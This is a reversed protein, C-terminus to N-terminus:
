GDEKVYKFVVQDQAKIRELIETEAYFNGEGHAIPVHIQDIGKTWICKESTMKLNVWRCDYRATKNHMLAVTRKGYKEDLAPILGLNALMQFGNCVGIILKDKKAFALIEKELNNKVKNAMANGSGTDDGYSFGGPFFMMQYDDLKKHGDIIDNIHVIEADGGAKKIVYASEEECNIGYGTLILAKPTM